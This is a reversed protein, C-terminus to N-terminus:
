PNLFKHSYSQIVTNKKIIADKLIEVMRAYKESVKKENAQKILQCVAHTLLM